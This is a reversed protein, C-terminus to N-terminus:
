NRLCKLTHHTMRQFSGQTIITNIVSSGAFLMGNSVTMAHVQGVMGNLHLAKNTQVNFASSSQNGPEPSRQM